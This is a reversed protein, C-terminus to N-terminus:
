ISRADHMMFSLNPSFGNGKLFDFYRLPYLRGGEGVLEREGLPVIKRKMEPRIAGNEAYFLFHSRQCIYNKKVNVGERM